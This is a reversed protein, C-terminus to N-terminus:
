DPLDGASKAIVAFRDALEALATEHLRRAPVVGGSPLPLDRTAAADAVVTSRYGLDLAARTTSSVCMHTMFGAFITERRGAAALADALGTGAFSNPLTKRIVAESGTPAAQAAIRGGHGEVDFLGGPKGHHQIHIVPTGAARARALLAAIEELAEACGTLPLKGDLYELQCDILVLSAKSLVSPTPDAGALQLLTKPESM